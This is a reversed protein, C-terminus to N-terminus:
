RRPKHHYKMHCERCLPIQKRNAKIMLKDMASVKPNLSKMAKIHHMEVRYDSQCMSCIMNEIRALSLGKAFFTPIIPSAKIQFRNPDLKWSPKYFSVVRGNPSKFVLDGSFKQYVKKMTNLKFKAALLKACSQKLTMYIFGSFGSYNHVFGYYNIIGRLVSNYLLIIQVPNLPYWLFKPASKGNKMFSSATLKKKLDRLSVTLRLRLGNRYRINNLTRFSHEQGRSLYVGLFKVYNENINTIKTKTESVTLGISKCFLSVKSLIEKTDALSGRIGIVWDDAYRVYMLRKYSNDRFNVSPYKRLNQIDERVKDMEGQNKHKKILYIYHSYEKLIKPKHGCDFQNKLNEIFVDLQHMFINSLIPSIISGQGTGVLDVQYVKFEFYGAKLSKWILNTFRRDKIKAEIIRMLKHHNISDFCKSIDGDIVWTIPQFIQVMQKLATHCSRNPRFGHSNDKFLPEFIANLILRMAEQVIKDRPPAITLPRTGGSAKDIWIRRGPKFQFSEDELSRAIQTLTDKAMGDL